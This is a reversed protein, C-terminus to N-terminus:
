EMWGTFDQREWKKGTMWSTDPLPLELAVEAPLLGGPLPVHSLMGRQTIWRFSRKNRIAECVNMTARVDQSVYELAIECDGDAWLKPAGAGSMGEMKSEVGLGRAAADLGIPFGKLCLFHLMMDIHGMALNACRRKQGSEEALVRFDFGVGNWTIVQVSPDSYYLIDCLYDVLRVAEIANMRHNHSEATHGYWQRLDEEGTELDKVLTAAVSIGLPHYDDLSEASDVLVATELDFTCIKM